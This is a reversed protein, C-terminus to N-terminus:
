FLTYAEKCKKVEPVLEKFDQMVRSMRLHCSTIKEKINKIVNGTKHM